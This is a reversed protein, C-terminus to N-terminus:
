AEGGPDNRAMALILDTAIELREEEPSEGFCRAFAERLVSSLRESGIRSPNLDEDPTFIVLMEQAVDNYEPPYGPYVIDLPDAEDLCAELIDLIRSFRRRLIPDIVVHEARSVDTWFPTRLTREDDRIRSADGEPM